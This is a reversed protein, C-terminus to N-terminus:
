EAPQDIRAAWAVAELDATVLDALQLFPLAQLARSVSDVDNEEKVEVLALLRGLSGSRTLLATSVTEHLRLQGVIEELPERMLVHMLSLIGCTFARDQYEIDAPLERRALLEMLRGRTAATQILAGQLRTQGQGATYLLLQIWRQLQKRGVVVIAQRVAGIRTALGSAVSNVMRLLSFALDPHRKFEQEIEDLDADALVMTLLRVLAGKALDARRSSLVEPKAFFRGQFLEFGLKQCARALEATDVNVAVMAVPWRKLATVLAALEGSALSQADVKVVDVLPLLTVLTEDIARVDEIALRFGHGKLERLREIPLRGDPAAVPIELVLQEKPLLYLLDGMLLECDVRVFGRREGLVQELGLEGFASVLVEASAGVDARVAAGRGVAEHFLLEFAVLDQKCDVIPQRGLYVDHM